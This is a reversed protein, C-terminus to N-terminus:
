DERERTRSMRDKIVSKIEDYTIPFPLSKGFQLGSEALSQSLLAAQPIEVGLAQLHSIHNRLLERPPEDSVISGEDMVLIRDPMLSEMIRELRHEILLITMGRERRLRELTSLVESTGAQDLDSTPEDLVLIDPTVVLNSAIAIRQKQGGSLAFVFRDSLGRIQMEDLIRDVRRKIEDHPVGRNELGFAVEDIVRLCFLQNDPNQFVLGARTSLKEVPTERTDMGDILVQGEMHGSINHPILGLLALALTSKGCGSPGVLVVFEGEGIALNVNRLIPPGTTGETSTAYSFTLDRVVISM